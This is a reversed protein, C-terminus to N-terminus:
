FRYSLGVNMGVSYDLDRNEFKDDNRWLSHNGWHGIGFKTELILGNRFWHSYTLNLSYDSIIRVPSTRWKGDLFQSKEEVSVCFFEASLGLVNRWDNTLAYQYYAGDRISLRSRDNIRWELMFQPFPGSEFTPNTSIIGGFAMTLDPNITWSAGLFILYNTSSSQFAGNGDSIMLGAGGFLDWRPSINMTYMLGLDVQSAHDYDFVPYDESGTEELFYDSMKAVFGIKKGPKFPYSFSYSMESYRVDIDHDSDEISTRAIWTASANLNVDMDFLKPRSDNGPLWSDRDQNTSPSYPSFVQEFHSAIQESVLGGVSEAHAVYLSTSAAVLIFLTNPLTKM